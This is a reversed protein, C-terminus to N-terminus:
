EAATSTMKNHQRVSAAQKPADSAPIVRQVREPAVATKRVAREVPKLVDDRDGFKAVVGDQLVLIKDTAKLIEARHSVVVVTKQQKKLQRLADLLATDGAGDLNSNPEDLVVFAPDGYLARALGIRQRQGLSIRDAHPGVDTEYGKPLHLVMEHVGAMKAARVVADGDLAGFRSINEAVSGPFLEVIQPLYGIHPGLEAADWDHVDAGDLRVHGSAPKWAGVLLRCLTSKGAGSAGIVACCTGSSELTFSVNRLIPANGEPAMFSVSEVSLVGEPRPLKVREPATELGEFMRELNRRASRAAVFRRWAATLRDIPALARSTIISAAIMAGPTIAASLVLYAGTGLILVQVALRFSRTYSLITATKETLIQQEARARGHLERWRSFIAPAMGLPSITEGGDVFRVATQNAAKLRAAAERQRTRTLLDNVVTSVLLFLAAVTAITGLTPHLLWVFGLFVISWPADLFALSADSQYYNRLDAVDSVGADPEGGSLRKEMSRLLVPANLQDDIFSASRSLILRRSQELVGYIAIAGLSIVTLWILTDMSGSSLVRDYIQLMYITTTLLLLNVLCSIFILVPRNRAVAGIVDVFQSKKRSM